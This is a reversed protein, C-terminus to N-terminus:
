LEYQWGPQWQWNANICDELSKGDVLHDLAFHTARHGVIMITQDQFDTKITDILSEMRGVAQEYSEGGPFPEAIRKIREAEILDKTKLTLKGYDCERLRKDTYIPLHLESATPIATKVARQLDSTFIASLGRDRCRELLEKAQQLGKKTLDVDNWGSARGDENDISTGHSEFWITTM